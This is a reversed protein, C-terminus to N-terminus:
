WAITPPPRAQPKGNKEKCILIKRWGVREQASPVKRTLKGRPRGKLITRGMSHDMMVKGLNTPNGEESKKEKQYDNKQRRLCKEAAEPTDGASQSDGLSRAKKLFSESSPSSLRRKRSEKKKADRKRAKEM